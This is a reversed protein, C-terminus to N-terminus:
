RHSRCADAQFATHSSGIAGVNPPATPNLHMPRWWRGPPVRGRYGRTLVFSTLGYGPTYAHSLWLAARSIPFSSATHPKGRLRCLCHRAATPITAARAFRTYRIARRRLM